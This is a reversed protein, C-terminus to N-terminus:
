QADWRQPHREAVHTSGQRWQVLSTYFMVLPRAELPGQTMQQPSGWVQMPTQVQSVGVAQSWQFVPRVVLSAHQTWTVDRMVQM